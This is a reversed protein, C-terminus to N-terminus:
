SWAEVQYRGKLELQRVFAVAAAADLGGHRAAVDAFAAAVGEPMKKASGSVYVAAGEETLLHWMLEGYERIRHTVYVTATAAAATTAERSFATILGGRTPHLVEARLYEEWQERYYFDTHRGRCGFFLHCPAPRSLQSQLLAYRDELFSRFPAVGTGPGVFILPTNLSKPPRLAGREVWVAVRDAAELPGLRALYGSCLGTKPRRLPTKYSVLAVLLHAAAPGRLRQSSALSFLRPRLPPASELLRELPPTASRFDNLVELLTRGERQNYRYLDDRGEATAFYSLRERDLEVDAYHRLVQFLYRRPSAGGIDLCGCMTPPLPSPLPPFCPPPYRVTVGGPGVRVWAEGDLGLRQLFADVVAESTLPLIALVDGPEYSLGSEGLDLEIHRTDQFHDASTVRRNVKVGAEAAPPHHRVQEYLGKVHPQERQLRAALAEAAEAADEAKLRTVQFKPPGLSLLADESLVPEQVGEPLPCTGRLAPWLRVIWPDLAGEYGNPHQDDGLGRELLPRAGLGELRRDLKKAVVNYHPYGSDGLGFVAYRCAALSDPPLSKRLLFRWFRRMNDPPDGQGTTSTVCVVLREGPLQSVDYSDMAVVRPSFLRLRAERGIREAVDQANGTQSGYLILLPANM